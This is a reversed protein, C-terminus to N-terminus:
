LGTTMPSKKKWFLNMDISQAADCEPRYISVKPNMDVQIASLGDRSVQVNAKNRKSMEQRELEEKHMCEDCSQKHHAARDGHVIKWMTFESHAKEKQCM